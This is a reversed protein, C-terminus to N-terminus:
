HKERGLEFDASNRASSDNHAGIVYQDEDDEEPPNGLGGYILFHTEQPIGGQISGYDGIKRTTYEGRNHAAQPSCGIRNVPDEVNELIGLVIEDKKQHHVINDRQLLCLAKYETDKCSGPENTYICDDSILPVAPACTSGELAAIAFGIGQCPIQHDYHANCESKKEM